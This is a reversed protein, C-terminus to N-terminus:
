RAYHLVCPERERRVPRWEKLTASESEADAREDQGDDTRAVEVRRRKKGGRSAAVKKEPSAEAALSQDVWATHQVVLM